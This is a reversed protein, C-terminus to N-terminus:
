DLGNHNTTMELGRLFDYASLKGLCNLKHFLRLVGFTACTNPATITAPWWCARLLQIRRETSAGDSNVCSCFDINLEHVGTIDYLVFDHAAAERFPCIVGPPHGLQVRLGLIQLWRRNWMFNTGNWKEVFHTPHRAHTAVICEACVMG